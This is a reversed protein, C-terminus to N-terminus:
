LMKKKQSRKKKRKKASIKKHKSSSPRSTKKIKLIAKKAKIKKQPTAATEILLDISGKQSNQLKYTVNYPPIQKTDTSSNDITYILEDLTEYAQSPNPRKNAVQSYTRELLETMHRDRSKSTQGGMVVAIIRHNNRVVSAALNFGSANIFGTKIGDVGKIKGLLKNHNRHTQGNYVFSQEKFYRFYEPFDKYLMLSLIAMDRATTIQKIHPLGSANKFITRTMGIRQAEKTMLLSFLQESGKGLSEGLVVAADNASKTVLALIAQKVTITTGPTLGLKSPAQRAAHHSVYLKQNLKLKQERLAKFTLYLTMMKTLSAPHTIGDANAQHYVKGTKADIVISAYKRAFASTPFSINFLCIVTFLIFLQWAKKM